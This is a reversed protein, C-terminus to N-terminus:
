LEIEDSYSTKYEKAKKDIELELERSENVTKGLEKLVELSKKYSTDIDYVKNDRYELHRIVDDFAYKQIRHLSSVRNAVQISAPKWQPILGYGCLGQAYAQFRSGGSSDLAM